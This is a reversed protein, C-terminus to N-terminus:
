ASRNLLNRVQRRGSPGQAQGDRSYTRHRAAGQGALTTLSAMTAAIMREGNGALAANVSAARQVGDVVARLRDRAALLARGTDPDLRAAM